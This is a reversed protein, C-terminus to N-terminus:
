RLSIVGIIAFAAATINQGLFLLLVALLVLVIFAPNRKLFNM